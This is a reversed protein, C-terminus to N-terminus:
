FSRFIESQVVLHMLDRILNSNNESKVLLEDLEERELAGM